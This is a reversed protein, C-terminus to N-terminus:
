LLNQRIGWSIWASVMRHVVGRDESRVPNVGTIADLAWFWDDHTRELDQLILPLAVPGMGIIRQYSPHMAIRRPSSEFETDHKWEATLRAFETELTGRRSTLTEAWDDYVEEIWSQVREAAPSVGSLPRQYVGGTSPDAGRLPIM